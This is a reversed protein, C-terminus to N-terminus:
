SNPENVDQTPASQVSPILWKQKDKKWWDLCDSQKANKDVKGGTLESVAPILEIDRQKVKEMMSPLALIGLDVIRQYKEKAEAEKGEQKLKKWDQYFNEFQQPTKNTDEKWWRLWLKNWYIKEVNNIDPYEEVSFRRDDPNEGMRTIHFKKKTIKQAAVFLTSDEEMKEFIYPLAPAGLEVIEKFQQTSTGDTSLVMGAPSRMFDKWVRYKGEFVAKMDLGEPSQAKVVVGLNLITLIVSICITIKRKM